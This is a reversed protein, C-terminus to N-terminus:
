NDLQLSQGKKFSIFSQISVRTGLPFGAVAHPRQACLLILDGSAPKITKPKPLRSRLIDQGAEGPHTLLALTSANTYFEWRSRVEIDYILLEGGGTSPLELYLNASFLGEDASLPHIDDCHIFGELHQTPGQMVRALGAVFPRGDKPHKAVTAGAPFIEDLELRLKDLPGLVPLEPTPKQSQGDRSSTTCPLSSGSGERLERMCALAGDFYAEEAAKNRSSAVMNYPQSGITRVDSSELGKRPNSVKWELQRNPDLTLRRAIEKAAQPPYFGQVHVCCARHSFLEDLHERELSSSTIIPKPRVLDALRGGFRKELQQIFSSLM